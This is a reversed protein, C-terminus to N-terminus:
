IAISQKARQHQRMKRLAAVVEKKSQSAPLSEKPSSQFSLLGFVFGAILVAGFGGLLIEELIKSRHSENTQLDTQNLGAELDSAKVLRVATDSQSGPESTAHGSSVQGLFAQTPNPRSVADTDVAEMDPMTAMSGQGGELIALLADGMKMVDAFRDDVNKAMARMIIAEMQPSITLEPARESPRVPEELIHKTALGVATDSDFPLDGTCLQYLLVGLAYIDSRADLREGRAQEPSMYEPTGCVMGVQTLAEEKQDSDLIKAIGFDLVKVFDRQGSRNLVMINEPKLDRHIISQGHAEGLASCIQVMIHAIREEGLPHSEKFLQFLDVGDLFEMAMYLVKDEMGFDIIQISNPHSLRSSAKAERQFRQVIIDDDRYKDHLIKIVITKDLSLQLARYVRGMGGVGLVSDLRYKGDVIHGILPDTQSTTELTQPQEAGCSPCFRAQEDISVSCVVCSRM